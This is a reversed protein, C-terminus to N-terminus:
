NKGMAYSVMEIVTFALGVLSFVIGVVITIVKLVNGMLRNKTEEVSALGNTRGKLESVINTTASLARDQDKIYQFITDIQKTQTEVRATMTQCVSVMEAHAPCVRIGSDRKGM